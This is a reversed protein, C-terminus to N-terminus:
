RKNRMRNLLKTIVDIISNKEDEDLKDRLAAPVYQLAYGERKVAALHEEYTM